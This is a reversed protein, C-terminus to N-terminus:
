VGGLKSNYIQTLEHIKAKMLIMIKVYVDDVLALQIM